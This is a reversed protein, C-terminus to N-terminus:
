PYVEEKKIKDYIDSTMESSHPLEKFFNVKGNFYLSTEFTAGERDLEVALRRYSNQLKTIDYGLYSKVKNRFPSYLTILQDCDKSTGKNDSLGDASPEHRDMKASENSEKGLTQQQVVVPSAQWRNRMRILYNSSMKGIAEYLNEGKEPLILSIHDILPIVILDPNNPEYHSINMNIQMDNKEIDQISIPYGQKDIYRGNKHFFDRIHSYIGYPNRLNDILEVKDEFYEFFEKDGDIKNIIEQPISYGDFLSRLQRTSLIIRHKVFLRHVIAQRIKAEKSMELSFYKISVDLNTNRNKIFELPSYVYMYDSIQSKGAKQNASVITYTGKMIGPVEKSFRPFPFPIIIDKGAEKLDRNKVIEERVKKYINM